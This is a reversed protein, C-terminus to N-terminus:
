DLTFLSERMKHGIHVRPNTPPRNRHLIYLKIDSYFYPDWFVIEQKRTKKKASNLSNGETQPPMTRCGSMIKNILIMFVQVRFAKRGTCVVSMCLTLKKVKTMTRIRDPMASGVLM